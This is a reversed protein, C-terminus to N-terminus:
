TYIAVNWTICIWKQGYVWSIAVSYTTPSTHENRQKDTRTHQQVIFKKKISSHSTSSSM